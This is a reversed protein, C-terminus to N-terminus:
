EIKRRNEKEEPTLKHEGSVVKWFNSFRKAIDLGTSRSAGPGEDPFIERIKIDLIEEYKRITRKSHIMYLVKWGMHHGIRLMGLASELEDLMGTFQIIARKEIQEIQEKQEPTLTAFSGEKNTQSPLLKDSIGIVIKESIGHSRNIPKLAPDINKLEEAM